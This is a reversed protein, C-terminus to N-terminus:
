ATASIGLRASLEDKPEIMDQLSYRRLTDQFADLALALMGHVGCNPGLTCANSDQSLFAISLSNLGM